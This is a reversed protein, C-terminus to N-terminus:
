STAPHGGLREAQGDRLRYQQPRVLDDFQSASPRTLGVLHEDWLYPEGSTLEHPARCRIIAGFIYRRRTFSTGKSAHRTNSKASGEGPTKEKSDSVAIASPLGSVCTM